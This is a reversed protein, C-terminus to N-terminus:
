AAFERMTGAAVLKLQRVKEAANVDKGQMVFEIAALWEPLRNHILHETLVFHRNARRIRDRLGKDAHMATLADLWDDQNEVLVCVPGPLDTREEAREFYERYPGWDSAIVPVGVAGFELLKLESKLANWKLPLLPAIAIHLYLNYLFEPYREAPTREGPAYVTKVKMKAPDSPDPDFTSGMFMLQPHVTKPFLTRWDAGGLLFRANPTAKLFKVMPRVIMEVDRLHGQSGAWGVRFIGDDYPEGTDL